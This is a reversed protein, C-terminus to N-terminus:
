TAPHPKPEDPLTRATVSAALINELHRELDRVRFPKKLLPRDRYESPMGTNIYGTVFFFPIGRRSLEQAIPFVKEGAINVDLVAGDLAATTVLQMAEAVDSAKIASCGLITLADELMASLLRDDEVV